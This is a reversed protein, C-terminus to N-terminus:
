KDTSNFFKYYWKYKYTSKIYIQEDSIVNFLFNYIVIFAYKM